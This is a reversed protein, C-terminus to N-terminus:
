ETDYVSSDKCWPCAERCLKKQEEKKQRVKKIM